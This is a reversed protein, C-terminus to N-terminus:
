LLRALEALRPASAIQYRNGTGVARIFDDERRVRILFRIASQASRRGSEDASYTANWGDPITLGKLAGDLYQIDASVRIATLEQSTIEDKM